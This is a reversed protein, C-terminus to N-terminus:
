TINSLARKIWDLNNLPMLGYNYFAFGDVKTIDCAYMKALLDESGTIDPWLVRLCPKVSAGQPLFDHYLEMIERVKETSTYYPTPLFSDVLNFLSLTDFGTVWAGEFAGLKWLPGFDTVELKVGSGTPVANRLKRCFSTVAKKRCRHAIELEGERSALIEEFNANPKGVEVHGTFFRDLITIVYHRLDNPNLGEDFLLQQCNQCFCLDLLFEVLPTTEIGRKEHHYRHNTPLYEVSELIISEFGNRIVDSVLATHYEYVDPNAPCLRFRHKDGYANETTSEPYKTGLASSHLCVVWASMQMGRISTANKLRSLFDPIVMTSVIPKMVLGEYLSLDPTFYISPDAIIQKHKPNHPLLFYGSHYNMAVILEEIGGREKILDLAQDLGEDELDWPYVFMSSILTKAVTTGKTFLAQPFCLM